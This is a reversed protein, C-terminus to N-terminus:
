DAHRVKSVGNNGLYMGGYYSEIRHGTRGSLINSFDASNVPRARIRERRTPDGSIRDNVSCMCCAWTGRAATEWTGRTCLRGRAYM